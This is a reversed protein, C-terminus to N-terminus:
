AQGRRQLERRSGTVAEPDLVGRRRRGRAIIDTLDKETMSTTVVGRRRREASKSPPARTLAHAAGQM